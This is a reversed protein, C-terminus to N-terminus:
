LYTLRDPAFHIATTWLVDRPLKSVGCSAASAMALCRAAPASAPSCAPAAPAAARCCSFSRRLAASLAALSFARSSTCVSRSILTVTSRSSRSTSFSSLRTGM